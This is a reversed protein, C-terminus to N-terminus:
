RLLEKNKLMTIEFEFSVDSNNSDYLENNQSWLQINIRHLKIPMFYPQHIPKDINRHHFYEGHGARLQLRDLTDRGSSNRKCVISPIEPIALDVFQSGIDPTRDSYMVNKSSTTEKPLFGFCKAAGRTINNYDWLITVEKDKDPNYFEFRFINSKYKILEKNFDVPIDLNFEETEFWKISFTYPTVNISGYQLAESLPRYFPSPRGGDSDLDAETYDTDVVENARTDSYTVYQSYVTVDDGWNTNWLDAGEEELKNITNPLTHKKIRGSYIQLVDRLDTISYEGPNITITHIEPDDGIRYKIMNNTKNINFPPTRVSCSIIRFGIVNNYVEYNTTISKKNDGKKEFDFLVNFNSTNFDEGAQYYNHSDVVINHSIIDRTFLKNRNLEYKNKESMNMFYQDVEENNEESTSSEDESSNGEYFINDM